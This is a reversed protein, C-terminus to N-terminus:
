THHLLRVYISVSTLLDDNSAVAFDEQGVAERLQPCERKRKKPENKEKMKGEQPKDGKRRGVSTDGIQKKKLAVLYSEVTNEHIHRLITSELSEKKKISRPIRTKSLVRRKSAKKKERNCEAM